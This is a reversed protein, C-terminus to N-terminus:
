SCTNGRSDEAQSDSAECHRQEELALRQAARVCRAEWRTERMWLTNRADSQKTWPLLEDLLRGDSPHASASPSQLRLAEVAGRRRQQELAWVRWRVNERREECFLM